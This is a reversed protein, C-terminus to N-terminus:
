GTGLQGTAPSIGSITRPATIAVSPIVSHLTSSTQACTQTRAENDATAAATDARDATQHAVKAESRKALMAQIRAAAAQTITMTPPRTMTREKKGEAEM